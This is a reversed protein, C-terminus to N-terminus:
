KVYPIARIKGLNNHLDEKSIKGAKILEITKNWRCIDQGCCDNWLMYLKSGNINLNHYLYCLCPFGHVPDNNLIATAAVLAGPNGDSIAMILPPSLKEALDVYENYESM